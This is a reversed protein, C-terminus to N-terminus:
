AKKAVSQAAAVKTEAEAIADGKEEIQEVEVEQPIEFLKKVLERAAAAGVIGVMLDYTRWLSQRANAPEAPHEKNMYAAFDRELHAEVLERQDPELKDM